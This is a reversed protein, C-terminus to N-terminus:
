NNGVVAFFTDLLEEFIRSISLEQAIKTVILHGSGTVVLM